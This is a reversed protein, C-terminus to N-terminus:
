LYQGALHLLRRSYACIIRVTYVFGWFYWSFFNKWEQGIIDITPKFTNDLSIYSADLTPAFSECQYVIM